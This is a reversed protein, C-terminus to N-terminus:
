PKAQATEIIVVSEALKRKAHEQAERAQNSLPGDPELKLYADLELLEESYDSRRIYVNALLLHALAALKPDRISAEHALKEAEDLRNLGFLAWALIFHGPGFDPALELAKRIIPEAETFQQQNCLLAGLGFYPGAYHGGSADISKQFAQRAEEGHGLRLQVVGMAYYAEYFNPFESAARQFHVLSSAPDNKSLRNIGKTYAKVAREPISLERASVFPSTGRSIEAPDETQFSPENLIIRREITSNTEQGGATLPLSLLAGFLLCRSLCQNM